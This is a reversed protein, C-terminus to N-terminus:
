QGGDGGRIQIPLQAEVRESDPALAHEPHRGSPRTVEHREVPPQIPKRQHRVGVPPPEDGPALRAEQHPHGAGAAADHEALGRRAEVLTVYAADPNPFRSDTMLKSM